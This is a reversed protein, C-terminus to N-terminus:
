YLARLVGLVARPAPEGWAASRSGFPELSPEAAKTLSMEFVNSMGPVAKAERRWGRPIQMGPWAPTGELNQPQRSQQSELTLTQVM